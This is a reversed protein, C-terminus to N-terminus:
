SQTMIVDDRYYINLVEVTQAPTHLKKYSLKIADNNVAYTLCYLNGNLHRQLVANFLAMM